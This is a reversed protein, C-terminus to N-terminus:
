NLSKYVVPILALYLAWILEFNVIIELQYHVEESFRFYIFHLLNLCAQQVIIFYGYEKIIMLRILM